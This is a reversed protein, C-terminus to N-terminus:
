RIGISVRRPVANRIITEEVVDAGTRVGNEYTTAIVVHRLGNRGPSLEAEKGAKMKVSSVSETRYRIEETKEESDLVIVTLGPKKTDSNRSVKLKDGIQLRHLNKGPNLGELDSMTMGLRTAIKSAVDGSAVVYVGESVGKGRLLDELAREVTPRYIDLDVSMERVDVQEKFRPEEMLHEVLSGYREKAAELVEGATEQSDVAVVPVGEVLIAYKSVRLTLKELAARVADNVSLVHADRDTKRVEIKQRFSVESPKAGAVAGKIQDIVKAAADSTKVCAIPKGDALIVYPRSQFNGFAWQGIFFIAIILIITREIRLQLKLKRVLKDQDM